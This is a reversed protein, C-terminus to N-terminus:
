SEKLFALALEATEQPNTLALLHTSNPIKVSRANRVAQLYSNAQAVLFERQKPDLLKSEDALLLLVPCPIRSFLEEKDFSAYEAFYSQFAEIPLKHIFFGDDRQELVYEVLNFPIEYEAYRKVFHEQAETLTGFRISKQFEVSKNLDSGPVEGLNFFGGDLLVLKDLRDPYTAAFLQAPVCSFSAAIISVQAINEYDLLSYLDQVIQEFTYPGQKSSNGHGRLDVAVVGHEKALAPLIGQFQEKASNIWHLLLLVPADAKEFDLYEMSFGNMEFRKLTAQM